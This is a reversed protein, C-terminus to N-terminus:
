LRHWDWIRYQIKKEVNHGCQKLTLLISGRHHSEHSIFYGLSVSIGKKQGKPVRVGEGMERLAQAIADGSAKFARILQNRSPQEKSEFRILPDALDQAGKLELWRVRQTHLHAFQRSVDRGGRASLSSGLGEDSIEVLLLLNVQNNTRWAELLGDLWDGGEDSAGARREEPM